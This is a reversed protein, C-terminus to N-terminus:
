LKNYFDRLKGDSIFDKLKMHTEKLKPNKRGKEDGDRLVRRDFTNDSHSIALLTDRPDLQIMPHIHEELFEVEEAFTVNENYKHINSYSKRWAMSGNTAHNQHISEMKYIKKKDTFYLYMESSGALDCRPFKTLATVVSKVRQPPYYDDDDMAIIINGRAEENLRNRKAGLTLKEELPIYRINPITIVAKLFLDEVKDTGDDLIIWEMSKKPFTQSKYLEILQPIFKRRNYTPTVVSVEINSM